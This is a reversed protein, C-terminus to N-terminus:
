ALKYTGHLYVDAGPIQFRVQPLTLTGHELRFNGSMSSAVDDTSDADEPGKVEKPKGLSRKSMNDFKQQVTPNTFYVSSLGFSGDLNLRDPIEQTGPLLIFKTNLRIPGVMTAPGKVALQLLDEIRARDASVDLTITKGIKRAEGEVQGQAVLTTKGFHAEVPHLNTDGNTGDVTAQFTTSLDLPHDVRSIQFDPTDTTGDVYIQELV